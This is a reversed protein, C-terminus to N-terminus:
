GAQERGSTSFTVPVVGFARARPDPKNDHVAQATAARVARSNDRIQLGVFVLSAMVAFGGAIQSLASIEEFTM